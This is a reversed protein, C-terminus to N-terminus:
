RGKKVVVTGAMWSHITCKYPYTGPATFTHTFSDGPNLFGSGFSSNTGTVTHITGDENMWMVTNNVGIVVTIRDPSYGLSTTTVGSGSSIAVHVTTVSQSSSTTTTTSTTSTGSSVAFIGVAGRSADAFDHTVFPNKGGPDRFYM